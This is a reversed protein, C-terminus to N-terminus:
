RLTSARRKRRLSLGLAMGFVLVGAGAILRSTENNEKLIAAEEKLADTERLRAALATSLRANENKLRNKEEILPASKIKLAEFEKKLDKLKILNSKEKSLFRNLVWGEKGNSLRIKSWKEAQRLVEIKQGSTIMTIIKNDRGPGTRLTIEMIDSIYMTEARANSPTLAVLTLIVIFWRM